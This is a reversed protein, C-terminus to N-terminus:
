FRLYSTSCLVVSKGPPSVDPVNVYDHKKAAAASAAQDPPLNVYSHAPNKKTPVAKQYLMPASDAQSPPPRAATPLAQQQANNVRTGDPARAAPKMTASPQSYSVRVETPPPRMGISQHRPQPVPPQQQAQSASQFVQRALKEKEERIARERQERELEWEPRYPNLPSEKQPNSMTAGAALTSAKSPQVVTTTLKPKPTSATPAYNPAIIPPDQQLRAIAQMLKKCRVPSANVSPM